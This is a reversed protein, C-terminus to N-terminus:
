LALPSSMDSGAPRSLQGDSLLPSVVRNEHPHLDGACMFIRSDMDPRGRMFLSAREPSTRNLWTRSLKEPLQGEYFAVIYPNGAEPFRELYNGKM